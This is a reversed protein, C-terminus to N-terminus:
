CVQTKNQPKNKFFGALVNFAEDKIRARKSEEEAYEQDIRKETAEKKVLFDSKRKESRLNRDVQRNYKRTMARLAKEKEKLEKMALRKALKSEDRERRAEMLEDFPINDDQCQELGLAKRIRYDYMRRLADSLNAKMTASSETGDRNRVMVEDGELPELLLSLGEDMDVVSARLEKTLGFEVANPHVAFAAMLLECSRWAYKGSSQIPEFIACSRASAFLVRLANGTMAFVYLAYLIFWFIGLLMDIHIPYYYAYDGLPITVDEDDGPKLAHKFDDCFKKMVEDKNVENKFSPFKNGKGETGSRIHIDALAIRRNVTEDISADTVDKDIMCKMTNGVMVKREYRMSHNDHYMHNTCDENRGVVRSICDEISFASVIAIGKPTKNKDLQDSFEGLNANTFIEGDKEYRPAYDVFLSRFFLMFERIMDADFIDVEYQVFNYAIAIAVIEVPCKEPSNAYIKCCNAALVVFCLAIQLM